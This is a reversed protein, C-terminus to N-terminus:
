RKRKTSEKVSVIGSGAIFPEMHNLGESYFMGSAAAPWVRTETAISNSECHNMFFQEKPDTFVKFAMGFDTLKFFRLRQHTRRFEDRWDFSNVTLKINTAIHTEIAM